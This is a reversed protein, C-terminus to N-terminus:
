AKNLLYFQFTSLVYVKERGDFHQYQDSVLRSTGHYTKEVNADDHGVLLTVSIIRQPIPLYNGDGM